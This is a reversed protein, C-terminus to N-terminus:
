LNHITRMINNQKKITVEQHKSKLAPGRLSRMDEQSKSIKNQDMKGKYPGREEWSATRAAGEDEERQADTRLGPRREARRFRQEEAGDRWAVEAGPGPTTNARPPKERSSTDGAIAELAGPRRRGGPHLCPQPRGQTTPARPRPRRLSRPASARSPPAQASSLRPAHGRGVHGERRKPAATSAGAPTPGPVGPARSGLGAGGDVPAPADKARPGPRLRAPDQLGQPATCPTLNLRRCTVRTRACLSPCGSTLSSRWTLGHPHRVDQTQLKRGRVHHRTLSANLCQMHLRVPRPPQPSGFPHSTSDISILSTVHCSTVHRSTVVRSAVLCAASVQRTPRLICSTSSLLSM